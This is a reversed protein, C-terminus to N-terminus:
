VPTVGGGGWRGFDKPTRPKPWKAALVSYGRSTGRQQDHRPTRQSVVPTRKPPIRLLRSPSQPTLGAASRPM